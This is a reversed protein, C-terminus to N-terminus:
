TTAVRTKVLRELAKPVRQAIVILDSVDTTVYGDAGADLYLGFILRGGAQVPLLAVSRPRGGGLALLLPAYSVHPQMPGIYHGGTEAVLGFITGAVTPTLLSGIRAPVVGDGAGMWGAWLLARRVFLIARRSRGLAFRLLVSGVEDRSQASELAANARALDTIPALQSPESAAIEEDSLPQVVLRQEAQELARPRSRGSRLKAVEASVFDVLVSKQKKSSEEGQPHLGAELFAPPRKKDAHDVGLWFRASTPIEYLKELLAAIPVEALFFPQVPYGAHHAARGLMLMDWPEATAVQLVAGAVRMPLIRYTEVFKHSFLRRAEPPAESALKPDATPVGLLESSLETLRKGDVLRLEWLNTALHGGLVVQQRLAEELGQPTVYGRSVLEQAFRLEFLDQGVRRGGGHADGM